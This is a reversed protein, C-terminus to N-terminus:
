QEALPPIKLFKKGETKVISMRSDPTFLGLNSELETLNGDMLLMRAEEGDAKDSISRFL